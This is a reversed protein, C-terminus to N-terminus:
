LRYDEWVRASPDAIYMNRYCAALTFVPAIASLLIARMVM